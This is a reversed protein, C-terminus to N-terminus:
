RRQGLPVRQVLVRTGGNSGRPAADDAGVIYLDDGSLTAAFPADGPPLVADILEVADVVMGRRDLTLRRLQRAGASPTRLTVLRGAHWWLGTVQDMPVTAPAIVPAGTRRSLDIRAIGGAHAVFCIGEVDTATVASPAGAEFTMVLDLTTSRPAAKYLRGGVADVVLVAGEPTVAVDVFRPAPTASPAAISALPRGAILQLKHLTAGGAALDNSVVWLDGRRTDITMAALDRFGASDARVLDDRRASRDNIVEIKRGTLSGLLFRGSVGDYAFGGPVLAEAAFRLADVAQLPPRVVAAVPLVPLAPSPAMGPAAPAADPLVPVVPAPVV